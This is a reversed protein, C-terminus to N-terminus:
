AGTFSENWYCHFGQSSINKKQGRTGKPDLQWYKGFAKPVFGSSTVM